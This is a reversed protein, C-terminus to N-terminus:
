AFAGLILNSAFKDQGQYEPDFNVEPSSVQKPPKPSVQTTQGPIQISAINSSGPETRIVSQDGQPTPEPPPVIIVPPQITQTAPPKINTFKGEYGKIMPAVKRNFYEITDVGSADVTRANPNGGHVTRYAKEAGMGPQFGRQKFYKVVLDLQQNFTMKKYDQFKVGFSATETPGMQILGVRGFPNARQPDGGSEAAIIGALEHPELGIIGSAQAIATMKDESFQTVPLPPRPPPPQNGGEGGEVGGFQKVEEDVGGVGAPLMSRVIADFRNLISSFRDVDQASITADGGTERAVLTQRREEAGGSRGATYALAGAGALGLMGARGGMRPAAVTPAVRAGGRAIAGAGAGAVGKAALGGLVVSSTINVIEPLFSGVAVSANQFADSYRGEMFAKGALLASFAGLKARLGFFAGRISKLEDEEKKFLKKEQDFYAKKARIDARIEKQIQSLNTNVQEFELVLKGLTRISKPSLAGAKEEAEMLLKDYARSMRQQVPLKIGEKQAFSALPDPANPILSSQPKVRVSTSAPLAYSRSTLFAPSTPLM